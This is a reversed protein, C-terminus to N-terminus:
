RDSIEGQHHGLGLIGTKLRQAQIRLGDTAMILGFDWFEENIAHHYEM